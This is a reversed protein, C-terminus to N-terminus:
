LEQAGAQSGEGGNRNAEAFATLLGTRMGKGLAAAPGDLAASQGFLITDASVGPEAQATWSAGLAFTLACASALVSKSCRDLMQSIESNQSTRYCISRPETVVLRPPDTGDIPSMQM